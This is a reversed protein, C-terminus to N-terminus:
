INVPQAPKMFTYEGDASSNAAAGNGLGRKASDDDWDPKSVLKQAGEIEVYCSEQTRRMHPLSDFQLKAETITEYLPGDYIPNSAMMQQGLSPAGDSTHSSKLGVDSLCGNHDTAVAHAICHRGTESHM